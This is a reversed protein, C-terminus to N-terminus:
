CPMEEKDTNILDSSAIVDCGTGLIDAVVTEGIHMEASVVVDALARIVAPMMDKPIEGNTRVPLAPMGKYATRVTTCVSRRPATLETKAFDAGRACKNGSFV